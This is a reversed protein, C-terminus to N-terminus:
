GAGGRLACALPESVSSKESEVDYKLIRFCELREELFLAYARVWASFDWAPCGYQGSAHSSCRGPSPSGDCAPLLNAVCMVCLTGMGACREVVICMEPIEIGLFHIRLQSRRPVIRSIRFSPGVLAEGAPGSDDKFNTLNLFRGRSEYNILEERFTPDGERLTRHIVMLCKIAVIWDKAKNLRKGIMHICYAM